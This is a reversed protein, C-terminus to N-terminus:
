NGYHRDIRKPPPKVALTTTPGRELDHRDNPYCGSEDHEVSEVATIAASLSGLLLGSELNWDYWWRPYKKRFLLMLVM